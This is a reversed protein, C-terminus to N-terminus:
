AVGGAARGDTGVGSGPQKIELATTAGGGRSASHKISDIVYLGDVGQRTGSVRCQGEVVAGVALDLTVSGSGAEREGDRKRADLVADADDEDASLSRLLNLADVDPRDFDLDTQKISASARDFWRARGASFARRPDRPEIDWGILNDDWVAETIGLAQGGPALGSGRKAFVAKDGRIKFTAGYKRAMREGIAILSEGDAAWYDQAIAGLEPDVAIGIGAGRALRGLYGALDTDDLHFSQPEKAKGGTDFGKASIKLLRGGGRSGSSRPKEVFGAFVRAGQLTVVIPMRRSPLRIRGDSDDITLSCSDSATGAKDTVSIDILSKSWANTLDQGGIELRWDVTWAM